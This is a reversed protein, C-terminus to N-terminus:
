RRDSTVSRKVKDLSFDYKVKGKKSLLSFSRFNTKEWYRKNIYDQWYSINSQDLLQMKTKFTVGDALAFDRGNLYDHLLVLAWAGDFFHGGVSATMENRKIAQLADNTWDIGGVFVNEGAKYGQQRAASLMGLANTDSAAWLIATNPYRKLLEVTRERSVEGNWGPFVLQNLLIDGQSESISAELGTNRNFAVASDRAGSLALVEIPRDKLKIKAALILRDSLAKGAAIDDPSIHGIWFKFKERPFGIKSRDEELIETNVIISYVKAQECAALIKDVGGTHASFILYDPRANSQIIDIVSEKESFRDSGGFKVHLDFNLKSAASNMVSTFRSWFPSEARSPNVFLVRPKEGSYAFSHFVFIVCVFFYRINSM